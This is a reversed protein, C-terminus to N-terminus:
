SQSKNKIEEFQINFNEQVFNNLLDLILCRQSSPSLNLSIEKIQQEQKTKKPKKMLNKIVNVSQYCSQQPKGQVLKRLNILQTQPSIEENQVKFNSYTFLWYNNYDSRHDRTLM